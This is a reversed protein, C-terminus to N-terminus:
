AQVGGLLATFRKQVQPVRRGPALSGPSRGVSGAAGAQRAGPAAPPGRSGVPGLVSSLMPEGCVPCCLVVPTSPVPNSRARSTLAVAASTAELLRQRIQALLAHQRHSFLGYYRVKVFGKPLVHQLFRGIFTLAPLTCMKVQKTQGDRYRFTVSEDQLGVIRNNSLAVRFIYPALYKLATAGNGVARCDVV